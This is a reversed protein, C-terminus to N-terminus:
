DSSSLSNRAAIYAYTHVGARVTNQNKRPNPLARLRRAELWDNVTRLFIKGQAQTFAQFAKVYSRPLDPVEAHREILRPFGKQRNVNRGVTNLLASLARITHQLVLPNRESMLAVDSAPKYLRGSHTVLLGLRKLARAIETPNRRIRQSRVLAEVSPVPGSLPIPRPLGGKTLYRRDRHWVDLVLAATMLGGTEDTSVLRSRAAARMLMAKCIAEVESSAIGTRLMLDFIGFLVESYEGHLRKPMKGM